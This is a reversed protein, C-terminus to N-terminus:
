NEYRKKLKNLLQEPYGQDGCESCRYYKKPHGAFLVAQGDCTPCKFTYTNCPKSFVKLEIRDKYKSLESM